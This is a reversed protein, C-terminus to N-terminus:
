TPTLNPSIKSRPKKEAVPEPEPETEPENCVPMGVTHTNDANIPGKLVMDFPMEYTKLGNNINKTVKIDYGQKELASLVNSLKRTNLNRDIDRSVSSLASLLESVTGKFGAKCPTLINNLVELVEEGYGQMASVTVLDVHHMAVVGFRRDRLDEPIEHDLLWKAFAPIEAQVRRDNETRSTSFMTNRANKLMLFSVKDRITNDLGPLIRKSVPDDNLLIIVRNLLPVTGTAVHKGNSVIAGKAVYQKIRSQFTRYAKYDVSGEDDDVAIIGARTLEETWPQVGTYYQGGDVWGGMLRGLIVQAFFSKGMDKPGCLFLAQGPGPELAYAQKYYASTWALLYRLQPDLHDNDKGADLDKQTTFMCTVSHHILPFARKCEETNWPTGPPCLPVGPEAVRVSSINLIREGNAKVIIGPKHYVYHLAKNVRNNEAIKVLMFDAPSATEDRGKVSSFGLTNLKKAFLPPHYPLYAGTDANMLWYKDGDFFCDNLAEDFKEARHSEVFSRGLGPIDAWAMFPKDHPVYVRIGDETIMCGTENDSVPDWFRLCHKGAAFDKVRGPWLQNVAEAIKEIPIDSARGRKAARMKSFVNFDWLQLLSLPLPKGGPVKHWERGIETYLSSDFSKKDLQAFYSSASLQTGIATLLKDAHKKDCITIPAEFEWVLKIKHGRSTILWTPPNNAKSKRKILDLPDDPPIGDYDAIFAHIKRPPNDKNESVRLSPVLGEVGSLFSHQIDTRLSWKQFQVKDLEDYPASNKFTWPTPSPVVTSSKLNEISFFM